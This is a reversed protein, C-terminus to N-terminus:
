SARALAAPTELTLLWRKLDLGGGYGTLRGASGVVRHCPIVFPLPNAGNAAGVARSARPRGVAAAIEGYSRTAGWPIRRVEDLVARQFPTGTRHLPLDFDVRRGALFEALQRAARDAAGGPSAPGTIAANRAVWAASVRSRRAGCFLAALLGEPTTLLELDGVAPIGTRFLFSQCPIPPSM